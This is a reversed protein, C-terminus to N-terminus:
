VATLSPAELPFTSLFKLVNFFRQNFANSILDIEENCSNADTVTISYDGASLNEQFFGTALNSWSATYPGTGGSAAIRISADNALYCSIPTKTATIIIQDPQSIILNTITKSAGNADIIRVSYSGAILDTFEQSLSATDPVTAIVVGNEDLLEYDYPGVSGQTIIVTLAGNADGFCDLDRHATDDESLLLEPPSTLLFDLVVPACIGDNITVQYNGAELGSIDEATATYVGPGTWQFTYSGSGGSVTLDISGDTVGSSSVGSGNYDSVVASANISPQVTIRYEKVDGECSSSGNLFIAKAFYTVTLPSATSNSLTQAPIEDTGSAIAGTIGAPITATWELLINTSFNSSLNVSTSTSGDCLLQDVESFIVEPKPFVQVELQFPAGVCTGSIPTVTYTAIAVSSTTNILQQEVTSQSTTSSSAGTISGSPAIVPLSWSYNTAADFVNTGSNDPTFNFLEGSCVVISEDAITRAQDVNITAVDSVVLSCGGGAYNVEVYYYSSGRTSPPDFSAANAGAIATGGTNTAGTNEFWQYSPTGTGNALTVTLM